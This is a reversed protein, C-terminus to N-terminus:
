NSRYCNMGSIQAMKSESKVGARRAGRQTMPFGTYGWSTTGADLCEAMQVVEDTSCVVAWLKEFVMRGLIPKVFVFSAPRYYFRNRFLTMVLMMLMTYIWGM